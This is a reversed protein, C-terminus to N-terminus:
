IPDEGTREPNEQYQMWSAALVAALKTQYDGSRLLQEEAPNSLFGCEVLVAPCTIHNMLYVSEPIKMPLRKNDPDLYNRLNDQMLQALPQSSSEDAYFVQAGHYQADPFTNQHISILVANEVAEVAEVRNRLDSSKKEKISQLGEDHLSIDESRLMVPATGFLGMMLDLKRAIALNIGSEAAGTLSVAGGDEGGHGADIVLVASRHRAASFVAAEEERGPGIGWLIGVALAVAVATCIIRKKM